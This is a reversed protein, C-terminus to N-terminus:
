PIMEGQPELAQALKADWAYPDAGFAVLGDETVWATWYVLHVAIPDPLQVWRQRGTRMAAHVSDAPWSPLLRAALSEAHEVRVCGHSFARTPETFSPRIPTDHIFVSFPTWFVLKMGGLPNDPGPEQVLQYAFTSETVATWDITRPNLEARNRSSDGFVRIGARALYTPDRRMIPLLEQTAIAQPVRWLPRFIIHTASASVIPTPWDPRGVVARTSFTVAGNEVLDLQFRASNVVIYRDGLSRPLWRWRELNLAIQRARAGPSVALEERTAPGVIGDTELGHLEQFQWVAAAVGATTDYGEAALREALPEPWGGQRDIHQYRRWAALLAAYGAEAPELQQVLANADDANSVSELWGVVDDGDTAATWSSDVRSPEVRGHAARWAYSLFSRTLLTDLRWIEDPLLHRHSLADLSGEDGAREIADLLARAQPTLGTGQIWAPQLRHAPAEYFRAVLSDLPLQAGVPTAVLCLCVFPRVIRM